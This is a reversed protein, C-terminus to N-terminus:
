LEIVKATTISREIAMRLMREAAEKSIPEKHRASVEVLEAVIANFEESCKEPGWADLRAIPLRCTCGLIKRLETGVGASPAQQAEGALDQGPGRGAEWAAFYDERTQCLKWLHPSKRVKHRECYGPGHCECKTTM